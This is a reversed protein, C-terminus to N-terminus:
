SSENSCLAARKTPPSSLTSESSLKLIKGVAWLTPDTQRLCEILNDKTPHESYISWWKLMHFVKNHLSFRYKHEIEVMVHDPIKLYAKLLTYDDKLKAMVEKTIDHLDIDSPYDSTGSASNAPETTPM